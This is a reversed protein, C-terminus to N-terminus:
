CTDGIYLALIIICTNISISSSTCHFRKPDYYTIWNNKLQEIMFEEIITHTHWSSWSIANFVRSLIFLVSYRERFHFEFFPLKSYFLSTLLIEGHAFNWLLLGKLVCRKCQRRPHLISIWPCIILTQNKPGPKPHEKLPVVSSSVRSRGSLSTFAFWSQQLLLHVLM